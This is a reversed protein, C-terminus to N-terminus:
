TFSNQGSHLSFNEIIKRRADVDDVSTIVSSDDALIKQAGAAQLIKQLSFRGRDFERKVMKFVPPHYIALLPEYLKTEAHYYAAAMNGTAGLLKKADDKCFLPYDCGILLFSNDPFKDIATLLAAMPGIAEYRKDDCIFSYGPKMGALQERNCSIHVDTCIEGLFDYVFQRQPLGHYALLSKDSGMRESKGGCVVLGTIAGNLNM